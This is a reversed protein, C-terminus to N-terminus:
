RGCKRSRCHWQWTSSSSEWGSNSVIPQTFWDMFADEMTAASIVPMGSSGVIETADTPHDIRKEAGDDDDDDDSRSEVSM